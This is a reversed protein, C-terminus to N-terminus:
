DRVARLGEVMTTPLETGDALRIVTSSGDIRVEDIRAYVSALRTDIATGNAQSEIEIRYVGQPVATGFADTGDWTASSSLDPLVERRVIDGTANRVVYVATDSGEVPDPKFTVPRGDFQVPARALTEMGIWGSFEALTGGGLAASLGRLLDNTLVQQEVSSFTALQTAYDTSDVPNLPDQNQVQATLMRLFTQFDSSLVAKDQSKAADAPTPQGSGIRTAANPAYLPPLTANSQM